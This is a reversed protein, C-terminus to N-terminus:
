NRRVVEVRRNAARGERSDNSAIPRTEGYGVATLRSAAIGHAILYDRVAHARRGSIDRNYDSSGTRDTHGQIEVTVAPFAALSETVKNLVAYSAVTLDASNTAFSVGELVMEAQIERATPCGDIGVIVGAPTGPCNDSTDPVGDQDDDLDPCGDGDQFGDQDEAEDPCADRADVVGDGDNDPDPCGDEDRYGDRDEADDPCSDRTDVIGDADNDLDPCGDDDRYGDFDEAEDPCLDDRNDFGDDDGDSSGGFYLTGGLFLDWRSKNVDADSPEWIASSGINDKDNGFLLAYRGGFDLSFRESLFIETGLTFAWTPDTGELRVRNSNEDYGSVTPGDPMLGADRNNHDRVKWNTFGFQTGFYPGFSAEPAFHFRLGVYGSTMTTYFAHVSDFTFGADTGKLAGPRVWGYNAGLEWSWRPTFGHRLWLGFNQDVNSFDVDDGVLKQIGFQLGLGTRGNLDDAAVPGGIVVALVIVALMLLNM